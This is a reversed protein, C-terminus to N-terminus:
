ENNESADGCTIGGVRTEHRRQRHKRLRDHMPFSQSRNETIGSIQAYRARSSAFYLMYLAIPLPKNRHATIIRTDFQIM